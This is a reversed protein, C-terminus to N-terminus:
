ILSPLASELSPYLFHFGTGLTKVASVTASKLVEVSMEGVVIKLIFSPVKVQIFFRGKLHKALALTLTRNYVPSPSVANYVGRMSDQEIAYLFFHCLDDIHIWSVMQRGSGLIAAFGMRIPKKFEALAGGTRSLVIGTRLVVLRKDQSSVASLSEEWRRCTEGLFDTAVPDTEVFGGAKPQPSADPGYWGIGSIGIVSKVQNPIERLAKVILDGSKTRSEEIEKKRKANWRKDAVGAGALHIIHDARRIAEPDISQNDPDWSATILAPRYSILPSPASSPSATIVQPPLVSLPATSKRSLLIVEYGKELLLQSLATGILGTGGTILITSM